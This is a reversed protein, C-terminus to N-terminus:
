LISMSCLTLLAMGRNIQCPMLFVIDLSLKNSNVKRSSYMNFNKPPSNVCFKIIRFTYISMHVHQLFYVM